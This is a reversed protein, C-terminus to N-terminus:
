AGVVMQMRLASSGDEEIRGVVVFGHRGYFALGKTNRAEVLLEIRVTGPHREVVAALLADGVGRRQHAPLVYLRSLLLDGEGQERAFAHGALVGGRFAVLFSANPLVAQKALVEPAHWSRTTVAVREVGLLADYTDHWTAALLRAVDGLDGVAAARITLDSM